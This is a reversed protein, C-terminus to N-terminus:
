YLRINTVDTRAIAHITLPPTFIQDSRLEGEGALIIIDNTKQAICGGTPRFVLGNTGLTFAESSQLESRPRPPPIQALLGSIPNHNSAVAARALRQQPPLSLRATSSELSEVLGVIGEVKADIGFLSVSHVLLLGATWARASSTFGM